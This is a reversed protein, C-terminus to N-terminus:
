YSPTVHYDWRKKGCDYIRYLGNEECIEWETKSLDCGPFMEALHRKQYASKHKRGFEPKCNTYYYDPYTERTLTFGLQEYMKGSFVRNDSYSTVRTAVREQLFRKFLRSAGGAVTLISAYRVLEFHTKDKNTRESRLIDFSMCAVINGAADKLAYSYMAQRGGQLHFIDYFSRADNNTVQELVLQRAYIVPMVGLASRIVNKVVERNYMWEDEYIHIVRIGLTECIKHKKYDKTHDSIFRTSHWALGHYEIALNRTPLFIDLRYNTGPITYEGIAPALESVFEGLHLQGSSPGSHACSPCGQGALHKEPMQSFVGHARCVIDVVIHSRDYKTKSYDYTDGHREKALRLFEDHSMPAAGTRNCDFCGSGTLHNNPTQEFDGHIPCTITIKKQSRVYVAKGYDYRDGHIARAKEVFEETTLPVNGACKPCGKGSLHNGGTVWFNGHKPCTVAVKTLQNKYEAREYSYAGGHVSNAKRVFEETTLRKTGGCKPCGSGRLHAAPTQPFEGHEHCIIRVPDSNRVYEVLNYDYRDAHVGKAAALFDATTKRSPM